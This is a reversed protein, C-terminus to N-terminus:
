LAHSRQSCSRPPSHLPLLFLRHLHGNHTLVLTWPSLFFCTDMSSDQSSPNDESCSNRHTGLPSGPCCPLAQAALNRGASTAALTSCLPRKVSTVKHAKKGLLFYVPKRRGTEGSVAEQQLSEQAGLNFEGTKELVQTYVTKKM